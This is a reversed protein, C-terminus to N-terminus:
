LEEWQFFGTLVVVDVLEAVVAQLFPMLEPYLDVLELDPVAPYLLRKLERSVLGALLWSGM